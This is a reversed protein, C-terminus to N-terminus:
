ERKYHAAWYVKQSSTKLHAEIRITWNRQALPGDVRAREFVSYVDNSRARETGNPDILFLDIDNHQDGVREPWWLAANLTNPSTGAISLTANVTTQGSTLTVANWNTEGNGMPLNLQGTGNKEDFKTTLLGAPLQSTLSGALILFAYIQGPDPTENNTVSKFWKRLLAATGGPYPASGSTGTFIKLATNSSNSATETYSPAQIDPKYRGDITPGYCQSLLRQNDNINIAGVGIVKHAAAPGKVRWGWTNDDKNGNAAIVAVGADFANDAAQSIAGDEYEYAQIEAVIVKNYREVAKQFAKIAATQSLGGLEGCTYVKYIDLSFNTVGRYPDGMANSGTIIAASSTGHNFCDNFSQQPCNGASVCDRKEGITTTNDVPNKFLVHTSHIGTDFLGIYENASGGAAFLPDSGIRDRGDDIDNTPVGDDPPAPPQERSDEPAIYLVDPRKALPRIDSLRMEALVGNILWYTELIPADYSRKFEIKLSDYKAARKKQIERILSDVRAQVQQNAESDRPANPNLEPFPPIEVDERFNIVVRVKKSAPEVEFANRLAPHIKERPPVQPLNVAEKEPLPADSFASKPIPRVNHDIMKGNEMVVSHIKYNTLEEESDRCKDCAMPLAVLLALLPIFGRRNELRLHNKLFM